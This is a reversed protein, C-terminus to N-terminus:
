PQLPHQRLFKKVLPIVRDPVDELLYHGADRFQHVEADPFRRKWEALFATTFVFDHEGWCILKPVSALKHLNEEMFRGLPYSPDRPSVPIDQVFKLTAIRNAWCNYPATLGMRVDKSLGKRSAMHLAAVSFLNFGLVGITALPTLHRILKLRWPLGKGGPTFFGTTNTIVLRSISPLNRLAFILGIMGGWDHLVLTIRSQIRLQALLAELDEVRSKVTYDYEDPGPKDSLGCGIHDPVITRYEPALAQVLSRYYFSWTPNGHLMIVPDGSGEDLYHYQFGNRNLFHSRFPYLHRFADTKIPKRQIFKPHGTM